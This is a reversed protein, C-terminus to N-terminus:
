QMPAPGRVPVSLSSHGAVEEDEEEEDEEEGEVEESKEEDVNGAPGDLVDVGFCGVSGHTAGQNFSNSIKHFLM